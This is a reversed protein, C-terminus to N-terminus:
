IDTRPTRQVWLRLAESPAFGERRRRVREPSAVVEPPLSAGQGSPWFPPASIM